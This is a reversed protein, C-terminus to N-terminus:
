QDAAAQAPSVGAASLNHPVRAAPTFALVPIISRRLVQRTVSGLMLGALGQRSHTAMVILDVRRDQAVTVIQDEPRGEVIHTRVSAADEGLLQALFGRMREVSLTKVDERLQQDVAQPTSRPEAGRWRPEVHVYLAEVLEARGGVLALAYQLAQGSLASFDVPVLIRNLPRATM